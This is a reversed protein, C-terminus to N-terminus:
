RSQALAAEPSLWWANQAVVCEAKKTPHALQMAEVLQPHISAGLMMTLGNLTNTASLSHKRTDPYDNGVHPMSVTHSHQNSIIIFPSISIGLHGPSTSQSTHSASRM